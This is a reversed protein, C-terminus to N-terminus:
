GLIEDVFAKDKTTFIYFGFRTSSDVVDHNGVETIESVYQLTEPHKRQLKRLTDIDDHDFIFKIGAYEDEKKKKLTMFGPSSSRRCM